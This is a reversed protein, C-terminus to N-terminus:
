KNNYTCLLLPGRLFASTGYLVGCLLCQVIHGCGQVERSCKFDNKGNRGMFTM